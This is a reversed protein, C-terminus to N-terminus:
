TRPNKYMHITFDRPHYDHRVMVWPTIESCWTAVQFPEPYYEDAAKHPALSSLSNFAIGKDCLSFMLQVTNRLFVDPDSHRRAFIGSAVIYDFRGLEIESLTNLSGCLFRASPFRRKDVAIMEPTIDIGTYNVTMGKDALWNLFDGLGCGVDLLRQGQLDCGDSLVAFRLQQSQTSGWDLSRPDTGYKRLLCTYYDINNQDDDAWGPFDSDIM